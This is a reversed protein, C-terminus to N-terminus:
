SLRRILEVLSDLDLGEILLGSPGRVVFPGRQPASAPLEIVEVREFTPALTPVHPTVDLQTAWRHLTQFCIGLELGIDRQSAGQERRACYYSAAKRRLSLPYAKGRGRRGEIRSVEARIAAAQQETHM